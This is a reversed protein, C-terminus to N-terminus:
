HSSPSPIVMGVSEDECYLLWGLPSGMPISPGRGSGSSDGKRDSWPRPVGAWGGVVRIGAVVGESRLWNGGAFVDWGAPPLELGGFGELWSGGEGEGAAVAPGIWSAREEKAM